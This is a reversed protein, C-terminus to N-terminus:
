ARPPPTELDRAVSSPASARLALVRDLHNTLLMPAAEVPATSISGCAATNQCHTPAQSDGGHHSAPMSGHHSGQGAHEMQHSHSAEGSMQRCANEWGTFSFALVLICTFLAATRRLMTATIQMMWIRLAAAFERCLASCRFAGAQRAPHAARGRVAGVVKRIMGDSKTLIYLEGDNDTAFRLDVRGRGSIAGSGPLTQGTGGRKRYTDETLRRLGADIEHIPAVTAPNGDDAALVDSRNAYWIRGTTIDGFVLKDKLM